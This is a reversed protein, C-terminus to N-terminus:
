RPGVSTVTNVARNIRATLEARTSSSVRAAARLWHARKILQMPLHWAFLEDDIDGSLKAYARIFDQAAMSNTASGVSFHPDLDLAMDAVDELPDGVAMSDFDVIGVVEDSMLLQRLRFAGHTPCTRSSNPMTATLREILQMLDREASPLVMALTRSKAEAEALEEIYDRNTLGGADSSHLAALARAIRGARGSDIDARRPTTGGLEAMWVVANSQDFDVPEPVIFAGSSRESQGWLHVAREHVSSARRSSSFAKAVLVRQDSSTSGSRIRLTCRDAPKYRLLEARRDGDEAVLGSLARIHPDEPFRWAYGNLEPISISGDPHSARRPEVFSRLYVFTDSEGRPHRGSGVRYTILTSSKTRKSPEDYTRNRISEIVCRDWRVGPPFLDGAAHFARLVYGADGLRSFEPMSRESRDTQRTTVETLDKM